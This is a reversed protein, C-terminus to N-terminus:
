LANWAIENWTVITYGRRPGYPALSEDYHFKYHGGMTVSAAVSAGIFDQGSSGGGGLKMAAQPAYVTGIFEGNGQLTFQTNNPMGWYMFNSARGSKNAIGNGGIFTKGGNMYIELSANTAITIGGGGGINFDGGEIFLITPGTFVVKKNGVNFGPKLRYYAPPVVMDFFQSVGDIMVTGPLWTAPLGTTDIYGSPPRDVDPFYVNMDDTAYGLQVGTGGSAHHALSGIIGNNLGVAGGPGTSAKGYVRANQADVVQGNTAIDGNDKRKSADYSGGPGSHAPNNPDFSDVVIGQGALDIMGKAVLGKAFVADNTTQVRVTRPNPLFDGTQPHRVWGESIITPRDATADIYTKYKENGITKEKVVNTGVLVWGDRGRNTRNKNLHAMAEEIGAESVAVAQNWAMSRVISVNQNSVLGLYSALTVGILATLVIVVIFASGRNQSFQFKM